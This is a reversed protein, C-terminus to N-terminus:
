KKKERGWVGCGFVDHGHMEYRNGSGKVTREILKKPTSTGQWTAYRDVHDGRDIDVFSEGDGARKENSM